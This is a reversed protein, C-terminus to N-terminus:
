DTVNYIYAGVPVLSSLSHKKETSLVLGYYTEKNNGGALCSTYSTM